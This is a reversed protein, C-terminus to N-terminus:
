HEASLQITKEFKVHSKCVGGMDERPNTSAGDRANSSFHEFEKVFCM